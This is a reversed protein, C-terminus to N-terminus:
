IEINCTIKGLFYILEVYPKNKHQIKEEHSFFIDIPELIDNTTYIM